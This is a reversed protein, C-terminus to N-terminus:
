HKKTRSVGTWANRLWFAWSAAHQDGLIGGIPVGPLAATAEGYIQSSPNIKPLCARPVDFLSLLEADWELTKLNMMQTRSANTV